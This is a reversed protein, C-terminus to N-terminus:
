IRALGPHFVGIESFYMYLLVGSVACAISLVFVSVLQLFSFKRARRGRGSIETAEIDIGLLYSVEKSDLAQDSRFVKHLSQVSTEKTKTNEKLIMIASDVENKDYRASLLVSRIEEDPSTPTSGNIKLIQEIQERNIM